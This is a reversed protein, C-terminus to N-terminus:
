RGRYEGPQPALPPQTRAASDRLAQTKDKSGQSSGFFFQIIAALTVGLLFGIVTDVIRARALAAATLQSKDDTMQYLSDGFFIAWGIFGFTLLTLLIAFLYIFNQALWSNSRLASEQMSRADARDAAAIEM